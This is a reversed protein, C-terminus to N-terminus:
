IVTNIIFKEFNKRVTRELPHENFRNRKYLEELRKARKEAAKESVGCIMEIDSANRVGLGALVTAPMLLDRAFVVAEYEIERSIRDKALLCLGIGKAMLFRTEGVSIVKLDNINGNILGKEKAKKASIIDIKYAAAVKDLSVPLSSAGSKILAKWAADRGKKYFEYSVM